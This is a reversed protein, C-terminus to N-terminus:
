SNSEQRGRGVGTLFAIAQNRLLAIQLLAEVHTALVRNFDHYGPCGGGALTINIAM